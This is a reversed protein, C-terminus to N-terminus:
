IRWYARMSLNVGSIRLEGEPQHGTFVVVFVSQVRLCWDRRRSWLDLGQFWSIRPYM